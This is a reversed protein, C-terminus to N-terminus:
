GSPTIVIRGVIENSEMRDLGDPVDDLGIKDAVLESFEIKDATMLDSITQLEARTHDGSVLLEGERLGWYTSEIPTEQLGVTVVTGSEFRNSGDVADLAMEMAAPSGSCEIAIDTGWGDTLDTITDMVDDDPHLTVDAGLERAAGQRPPVPEIVIVKEAGLFTAWLIVNLGVGGAGFVTVTDGAELDSRRLAHLGTAGACGVISGWAFPVEEGLPVACSEPVVIEEAFTGDFDHGISERNRCRNDNGALCPKCHGCSHIYHVIVHDGEEFVTVDDGIETVIGAGEHGLTVPVTSPGFDSSEDRYHVDSGCISAARVEIRIAGAEIRPRDIDKVSIPESGGVYRVAKM